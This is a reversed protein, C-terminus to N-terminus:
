EPEQDDRRARVDYTFTLSEEDSEETVQITVDEDGTVTRITPDPQPPHSRDTM